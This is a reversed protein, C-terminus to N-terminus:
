FLTIMYYAALCYTYMNCSSSFALLYSVDDPLKEHMSKQIVETRCDTCIDVIYVEFKFLVLQMM